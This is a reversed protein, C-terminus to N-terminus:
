RAPDKGAESLENQGAIEAMLATELTTSYRQVAFRGVPALPWVGDVYIGKTLLLIVDQGRHSRLAKWEENGSYGVLEIQGNPTARRRPDPVDVRHYKDKYVKTVRAFHASDGGERFDRGPKLHARVIVEAEICDRLQAPGDRAPTFMQHTAPSLSFPLAACIFPKLVATVLITRKMKSLIM